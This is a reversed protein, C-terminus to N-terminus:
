QNTRKVRKISKKRSSLIGAAKSIATLSYYSPIACHELRLKRYSLCSLMKLSSANTVLGIRITDNVMRKFTGMLELLEDSPSFSQKASKIAYPMENQAIRCQSCDAQFISTISILM